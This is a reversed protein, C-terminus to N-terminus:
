KCSFTRRGQHRLTKAQLLQPSDGTGPQLSRYLFLQLLHVVSRRCPCTHASSYLIRGRQASCRHYRVRLRVEDVIEYLFDKERLLLIEKVARDALGQALVEHVKWITNQYAKIKGTIDGVVGSNNETSSCLGLQSCSPYLPPLAEELSALHGMVLSQFHMIAPPM